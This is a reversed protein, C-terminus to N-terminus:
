GGTRRQKPLLRMIADLQVRFGMDLLRDAEDLVLVELHKLSMLSSRQLVDLLRGPTGVLVQAGVTEFKKVDAAPDSCLLNITTSLHSAKVINCPPMVSISHLPGQLHLQDNWVCRSSTIIPLCALTCFM